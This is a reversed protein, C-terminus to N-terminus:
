NNLHPNCVQNNADMDEIFKITKSVISSNHERNEREELHESGYLPGSELHIKNLHTQPLVPAVTIPYVFGLRDTFSNNARLATEQCFECTIRDSVISISPNTFLSSDPHTYAQRSITELIKIEADNFVQDGNIRKHTTFFLQRETLNPESAFIIDNITLGEILNDKQVRDRIREKAEDLAVGQNSIFQDEGSVAFMLAKKDNKIFISYGIAKSKLDDKNIGVSRMKTKTNEIFPEKKSVLARRIKLTTKFKERVKKNNEPSIRCLRCELDDATVNYTSRIRREHFGIDLRIDRPGLNSDERFPYNVSDFIEQVRTSKKNRHAKFVCSNCLEELSNIVMYTYLASNTARNFQETWKAPDINGGEVLKFLEESNVLYHQMLNQSDHLLYDNIKPDSYRKFSDCLTPNKLSSYITEDFLEAVIKETNWIQRSNQYLQSYESNSSVLDKVLIALKIKNKATMSKKLHKGVEVKTVGKDIIERYLEGFEFLQATTSLDKVKDIIEEATATLLIEDILALNSQLERMSKQLFKLSKSYQELDEDLNATQFGVDYFPSGPIFLESVIQYRDETNLALIDPAVAMFEDIGEKLLDRDLYIDESPASGTLILSVASSSKSLTPHTIYGGYTARMQSFYNADLKSEDFVVDVRYNGARYAPTSQDPSQPTHVKGDWYTEFITDKGLSDLFPWYAIVQSTQPQIVPLILPVQSASLGSEDILM